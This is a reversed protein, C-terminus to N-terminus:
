LILNFSFIINMQSATLALARFRTRRLSSKASCCFSRSLQFDLKIHVRLNISNHSGPFFPNPMHSTSSLQQWHSKWGIKGNDYRWCRFNFPQIHTPWPPPPQASPFHFITTSSRENECCLKETHSVLIFSKVFKFSRAFLNGIFHSVAKFPKAISSPFTIVKMLIVDIMVASMWHWVDHLWEM